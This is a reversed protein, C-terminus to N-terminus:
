SARVGEGHRRPVAIVADQKSLAAGGAFVEDFRDPGV